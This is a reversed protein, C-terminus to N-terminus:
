AAIARAEGVRHMIYGRGAINEITYVSGIKQRVRCLVV